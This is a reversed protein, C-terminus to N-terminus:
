KLAPLIHDWHYFFIFLTYREALKIGTKILIFRFDLKFGAKLLLSTDRMQHAIPFFLTVILPLCNQDRKVNSISIISCHKNDNGRSIKNHFPELIHLKANILLRWGFTILRELDLM